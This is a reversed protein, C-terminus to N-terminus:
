YATPPISAPPIFYNDFSSANYHQPPTTTLRLPASVDSSSSSPAIITSPMPGKDPGIFYDDEDAYDDDDDDDDDTSLSSLKSLNSECSMESQKHRQMKKKAKREMAKEMIQRRKTAILEREDLSRQVEQRVAKKQKVEDEQEDLQFTFALGGKSTERYEERLAKGTLYMTFIVEDFSIPCRGDELIAIEAAVFAQTAYFGNREICPIQVLGECPDCTLGLCHEMAISAAHGVQYPSGGMLMTVAGAAMSSASGIEAQCGCEAGSISGNAKILNGLLGAVALARIIEADDFGEKVQMYYLCAPIVGCSGCTPATVVVGGSANEESVAMAYAMVLTNRRYQESLRRSKLYLSRARQPTNLPGPLVATSSNLGRNIADKMTLWVKKLYDWITPPEYEEVYQWLPKGTEEVWHLIMTFNSYPYIEHVSNMATGPPGGKTSDDLLAGGGISYCTYKEGARPGDLAEFTLGNHHELDKEPEWCLTVEKGKLGEMIAVDTLHGRGTAALSGYLTVKVKHTDPFRKNFRGCARRPGMTHSSSPGTGIRFLHRLTEMKAAMRKEYEAQLDKGKFKSSIYEFDKATHAFDTQTPTAPDQNFSQTSGVRPMTRISYSRLMPPPHVPGAPTTPVPGILMAM